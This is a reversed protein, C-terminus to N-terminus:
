LDSVDLVRILVVDGRAQRGPARQQCRRMFLAGVEGGQGLCLRPQADRSHELVQVLGVMRDFLQLRDDRSAGVRWESRQCEGVEPEALGM